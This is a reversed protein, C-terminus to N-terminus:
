GEERRGEGRERLCLPLAYADHIPASPLVLWQSSRHSAEECNQSHSWLSLTQRTM